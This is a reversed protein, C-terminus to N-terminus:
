RIRGQRKRALMCRRQRRQPTRKSCAKKKDEDVDVVNGAEMVVVRSGSPTLTPCLVAPTSVTVLSVPPSKCTPLMASAAARPAM